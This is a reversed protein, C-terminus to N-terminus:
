PLTALEAHIEAHCNACVMICKDLEVKLKEWSRTHGSASIGFDKQTPDLHHFQLADQCSYYSCRECRGGKYTIADAKLSRRKKSVFFKNKCNKSCFKTQRGTLATECLHYTCKM